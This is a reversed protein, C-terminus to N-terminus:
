WTQQRRTNAALSDCRMPVQYPGGLVGARV